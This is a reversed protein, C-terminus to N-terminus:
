GPQDALLSRRLSVLGPTSSERRRAKLNDSPEAEPAPAETFASMTQAAPKASSEANPNAKDVEICCRTAPPDVPLPSAPTSRKTTEWGIQSVPAAMPPMESTKWASASLLPAIARTWGIM